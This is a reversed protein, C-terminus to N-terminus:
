VPDSWLSLLVESTLTIMNSHGYNRHYTFGIMRDTTPRAPRHGAVAQRLITVHGSLQFFAKDLQEAPDVGSRTGAM